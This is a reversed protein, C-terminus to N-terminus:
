EAKAGPLGDLLGAVKVLRAQLAAVEARVKQRQTPNLAHLHSAQTPLKHGARVLAGIHKLAAPQTPRGLKKKGKRLGAQHEQVAHTLERTSWGAQVAQHALKSRGALDEVPALASLDTFDLRLRTDDPLARWVIFARVCNRLVGPQLGLDALEARHDALLAEFGAEKSRRHDGYLQADGDFYSGLLYDGVKLYHHLISGRALNRLHELTAHNRTALPATPSPALDTTM